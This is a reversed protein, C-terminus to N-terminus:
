QCTSPNERDYVKEGYALVASIIPEDWPRVDIDRQLAHELARWFASETQLDASEVAVDIDSDSRFRGPQVLSGFLYVRQLAPFQPAIELVARRARSLWELRETERQVQQKATREQHYRRVAEMDITASEPTTM